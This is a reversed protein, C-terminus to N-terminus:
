ACRLHTKILHLLSEMQNGSTEAQQFSNV